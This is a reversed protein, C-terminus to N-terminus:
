RANLFRAYKLDEMTDIDISEKVNNIIIPKIKGNYFSKERFLKKKSIIYFNGNPNYCKELFNSQSNFNIKLHKSYPKLFNNKIKFNWCPNVQSLTVSIITNENNKKFLNIGSLINKKNRFPSSSQLLILGDVIDIKKEYWKIAHISVDALNSKDRALYKPRIWPCNIKYHIARKQIKKSDTSLMILKNNSIKKAFNISYDVLPTKNLMLLNKNKLRKSNSRAVILTLLKM